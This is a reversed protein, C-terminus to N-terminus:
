VEHTNMVSEGERPMAADLAAVEGMGRPAAVARVWGILEGLAGFVVNADPPTVGDHRWPTFYFIYTRPM